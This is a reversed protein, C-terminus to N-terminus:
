NDSHNNIDNDTDIAVVLFHIIIYTPLLLSPIFFFLLLLAVGGV